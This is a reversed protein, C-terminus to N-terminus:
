RKKSLVDYHVRLADLLLTSGGVNKLDLKVYKSKIGKGVKVRAVNEELIVNELEYEYEEGNPKVVTLVMNGNTRHSIWVQKLRKKDNMELSLNGTRVNWDIQYGDDTDGTLDYMGTSILGLNKGGFNCMSNFNYNNYQTLAKNKINMVMTINAYEDGVADVITYRSEGYSMMPIEAILIGECSIMGTATMRLIPVEFSITGARGDAFTGTHQVMPISFTLTGIVGYSSVITQRIIPLSAVLSGTIGAQSASLISPFPLTTSIRGVIGSEGVISFVQNPISTNITGAAGVAGTMVKTLKPISINMVGLISDTGNMSRKLMPITFKLSGSASVVGVSSFTMMPILLGFDKETPSDEGTLFGDLFLPEVFPINIAIQGTETGMNVLAGTLRPTVAISSTVFGEVDVDSTMTPSISFHLWSDEDDGNQMQVDVRPYVWIGKQYIFSDEPEFSQEGEGLSEYKAYDTIQFEKMRTVSYPVIEGDYAPPETGMYKIRAKQTFGDSGNVCLDGVQTLWWVESIDVSASSVGNVFLTLVNSNRVLAIHVYDPDTNWGNEDWQPVYADGVTIDIGGDPDDPDFMKFGVLYYPNEDNGGQQVYLEWYMFPPNHPEPLGTSDWYIWDDANPYMTSTTEYQGAIVYKPYPTEIPM